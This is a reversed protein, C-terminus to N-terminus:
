LTIINFGASKYLRNKVAAGIGGETSFEAYITKISHEDFVRLDTFLNKAYQKMDCGANIVFGANNYKYEGYTLVGVTKDTHANIYARVKDKEGEVVIVDAKPSYHTYKMGPCKPKENDKLVVSAVITKPEIEKLMEITVAGPRLVAPIDGSVDVITSELGIESGDGDIIYDVRGYMDDVVHRCVTPSPSGSLNASPAAIFVGSLDIFRNATKNSPMRVAVTDLGATVKDIVNPQKKFILTLPGPWFVDIFKKACESVERALKYVDQKHAIHVILPNDSPRGKAKYIKEIAAANSSDAGLGYVTETPFVVLGGSKLAKAAGDLDSPKVIKTM